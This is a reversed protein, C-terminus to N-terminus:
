VSVFGNAAMEHETPNRPLNRRQLDLIQQLEAEDAAQRAEIM